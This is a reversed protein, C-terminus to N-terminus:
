NQHRMDSLICLGGFVNLISNPCGPFECYLCPGFPRLTYMRELPTYHYPQLKLHTIAIFPLSKYLTSTPTKNPCALTVSLPHVLNESPYLSFSTSSFPLPDTSSILSMSTLLTHRYSQFSSTFTVHISPLCTFNPFLENESTKM